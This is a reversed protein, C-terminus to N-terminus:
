FLHQTDAPIIGFIVPQLRGQIACIPIRTWLEEGHEWPLNMPIAGSMRHKCTCAQVYPHWMRRCCQCGWSLQLYEPVEASMYLVMKPSAIESFSNRPRKSIRVM